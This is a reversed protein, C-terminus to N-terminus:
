LFDKSMKKMITDTTTKSTFETNTPKNTQIYKNSFNYHEQTRFWKEEWPIKHLKILINLKNIKGKKSLSKIM